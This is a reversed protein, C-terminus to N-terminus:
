KIMSTDIGVLQELLPNTSLTTTNNIITKLINENNDKILKLDTVETSQTENEFLALMQKSQVKVTITLPIAIFAILAIIITILNSFKRM